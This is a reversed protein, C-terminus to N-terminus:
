KQCNYRAARVTLTAIHKRPPVSMFIRGCASAMATQAAKAIGAWACCAAPVALAACVWGSLPCALDRAVMTTVARLRTSSICSTGIAMLTTVLRSMRVAPTVLAASIAESTGPKTM